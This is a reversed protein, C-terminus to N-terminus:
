QPTIRPLSELNRYLVMAYCPLDLRALKLVDGTTM